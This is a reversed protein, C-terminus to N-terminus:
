VPEFRTLTEIPIVAEVSVELCARRDLPPQEIETMSPGFTLEESEAVVRRRAERVPDLSLLLNRHFVTERVISNFDGGVENLVTLIARYVAEAQMGADALEVPPQCSFFLERAEPGDTSRLVVSCGHSQITEARSILSRADKQGNLPSPIGLGSM